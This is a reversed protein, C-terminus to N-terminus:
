QRASRRIIGIYLIMELVKPEESIFSETDYINVSSTLVYM